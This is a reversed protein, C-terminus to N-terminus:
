KKLKKLQNLSIMLMLAWLFLSTIWYQGCVMPSAVMVLMGYLVNGTFTDALVSVVNAVLLVLALGLWLASLNRLLRLRPVDEARVARYLLVGGPVFFGLSLLVLLARVLGQPQDVFGLLACAGYLLAWLIFLIRDKM